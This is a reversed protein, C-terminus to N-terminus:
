HTTTPASSLQGPTVYFNYAVVGNIGTIDGDQVNAHEYGRRRLSLAVSEDFGDFTTPLRHTALFNEVSSAPVAVRFKKRFDLSDEVKQIRETPEVRLLGRVVEAITDVPNSQNVQVSPM